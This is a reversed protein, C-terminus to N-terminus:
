PRHSLLVYDGGAAVSVRGSLKEGLNILLPESRAKCITTAAQSTTYPYTPQANSLIWAEQQQLQGTMRTEENDGIGSSTM